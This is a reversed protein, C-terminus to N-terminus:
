SCLADLCVESHIKQNKKSKTSRASGPNRMTNYLLTLFQNDSIHPCHDGAGYITFGKENLQSAFPSFWESNSEIGHLYIIVDDAGSWKRFSFSKGDQTKIQGLSEKMM